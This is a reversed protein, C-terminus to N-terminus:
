ELNPGQHVDVEPTGVVVEGPLITKGGFLVLPQVSRIIRERDGGPVPERAVVRVREALTPTLLEGTLDLVSFGKASLLDEMQNHTIRLLRHDHSLGAEAMTQETAALRTGLQYALQALRAMELTWAAVERARDAAAEESAKYGHQLLAAIEVALRPTASVEPTARLAHGEFLERLGPEDSDHASSM